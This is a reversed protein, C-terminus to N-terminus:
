SQTLHWLYFLLLCGWRSRWNSTDIDDDNYKDNIEDDNDDDVIDIRVTDDNNIKMM